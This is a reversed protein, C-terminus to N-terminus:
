EAFHTVLQKAVSELDSESPAVAAVYRDPRVIVAYSNGVAEPAVVVTAEIHKLEDPLSVDDLDDPVFVCL